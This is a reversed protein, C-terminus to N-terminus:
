RGGIDSIVLHKQIRCVSFFFFILTNKLLRCFLRGKINWLLFYTMCTQFSM